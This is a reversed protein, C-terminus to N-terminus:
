TSIMLSFIDQGSTVVVWHVIKARLLHVEEWVKDSTCLRCSDPTLGGQKHSEGLQLSQFM